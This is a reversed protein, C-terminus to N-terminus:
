LLEEEYESPVEQTESQTWQRKNQWQAGDPGMKKVNTRLINYANILDGRPWRKKWALWALVYSVYLRYEEKIMYLSQIINKLVQFDILLVVPCLYSYVTIIYICWVM